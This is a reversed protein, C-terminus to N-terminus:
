PIAGGSMTRDHECGVWAQHWEPTNSQECSDGPAPNVAVEPPTYCIDDSGGSMAAGKKCLECAELGPANTHSPISTDCLGGGAQAPAAALVTYRLSCV